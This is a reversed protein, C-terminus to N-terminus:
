QVDKHFIIRATTVLLRVYTNADMRALTYPVHSIGFTDPCSTNQNTSSADNGDNGKTNSESQDSDSAGRSPESESNTEDQSDGKKLHLNRKKRTLTNKNLPLRM